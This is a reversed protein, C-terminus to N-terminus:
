LTYRRTVAKWLAMYSSPTNHPRVPQLGSAPVRVCVVYAHVPRLIIKYTNSTSQLM